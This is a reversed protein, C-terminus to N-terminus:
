SETLEKIANVLYTNEQRPMFGSYDRSESLAKALDFSDQPMCFAVKRKMLKEALYEQETQGPTPIFIVKKGLVQMDMITSYGSRAIVIEASALARELDDSTLFNIAEGRNISIRKGKQIVGRVILFRLSTMSLNQILIKELISRQPEPGSCIAIVDYVPEQIPKFTFRSLAGIWVIRKHFKRKGFSVLDGSLGHDDPYDPIWCEDFKRMLSENIMRVVGSLWGFRKPMLINSQHTIFVSKVLPSWCGYRNDSIIIDISHEMVIKEVLAHERWITRTFKPLQKLMKPVMRNSHSYEPSYSPLDFFHLNPFEHKLLAQSSGSGGILVDCGKELLMRIVPICRTAHGLGWDLPTILIRKAM